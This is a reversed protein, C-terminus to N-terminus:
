MQYPPFLFPPPCGLKELLTAQIHHTVENHIQKFAHAWGEQHNAQLPLKAQEELQLHAGWRVEGAFNGTRSARWPRRRIMLKTLANERIDEELQNLTQGALAGSVAVRIPSWYKWRVEFALGEKTQPALQEDLQGEVKFHHFDLKTLM